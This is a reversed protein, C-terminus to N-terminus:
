RLLKQWRLLTAGPRGNWIKPRVTAFGLELQKISGSVAAPIQGSRDPWVTIEDTHETGTFMKFVLREKSGDHYPRKIVDTIIGLIALEYEGAEFADLAIKNQFVKGWYPTLLTPSKNTDSARRKMPYAAHGTEIFGYM